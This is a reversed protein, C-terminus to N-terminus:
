RWSLSAKPVGGCCQYIDKQVHVTNFAFAFRKLFQGLVRGLRGM